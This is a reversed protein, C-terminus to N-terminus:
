LQASPKNILQTIKDLYVKEKSTDRDYDTMYFTPVESRLKKQLKMIAM